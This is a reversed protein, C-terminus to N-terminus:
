FNDIFEGTKLVMSFAKQGLDSLCFPCRNKGSRNVVTTFNRVLIIFTNHTHIVLDVFM